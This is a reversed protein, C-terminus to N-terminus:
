EIVVDLGNDNSSVEVNWTGSEITDSGAIDFNVDSNCEVERTVDQDDDERDLVLDPEVYRIEANDLSLSFSSSLIQDYEELRSCQDEINSDLKQLMDVNSESSSFQNGGFNGLIAHVTGLATIVVLTGLIIMVPADSQM